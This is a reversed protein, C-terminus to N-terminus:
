PMRTHPDHAPPCAACAPPPTSSSAGLAACGASWRRRRVERLAPNRIGHMLAETGAKAAMQKVAKQLNQFDGTTADM